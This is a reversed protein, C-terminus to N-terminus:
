GRLSAQFAAVVKESVGTHIQNVERDTLSRETSRYTIRIGLSKNGEGVQPGRYYDFLSISEAHEPRHRELYDLVEQASVGNPLVIDLDRNVPPFKPLPRFRKVQTAEQFLLDFDLDFLYVPGRIHFAHAVGPHVQGLDGLHMDALLIRASAEPLLYGPPEIDSWGIESTSVKSLLAEVVGKVDFYDTSVAPESWTAPRRLGCLIGCLNFREDPLDKGDRPFFVKSLEFLRLNFNGRHQNRAVTELMGPVLSTRMVAQEESLPNRLPLLRRRRDDEALQLQEIAERSIFSYSIVECFGAMLLTQKAHKRLTQDRAPKVASVRALPLNSPIRDYGALRAVEEVLDVERSLDPRFSPPEVELFGNGTTRVTLQISELHRRIEDESLDTGLFRNTRSVRLGIPERLIPRPYVDLRGRALEGDGLEIMLQAARDLATIVGEPDVGREFRYSSETGLGLAKSTRRISAPNFYASEILVTRTQDTIESNLGGMIGALAVGRRADCILLMDQHLQHAQGDLTVFSEAPQARRVVICHGELSECDFAHLPQGLELMVYNTIDVINNISRVNQAELRRRLWLPSSKIAINQVLRAAYRPCLDPDEVTVAALNEVPVAGEALEVAPPSWPVGFLAAVERAVGVVSLADARNPTIGIDLLVDDLGLARALPTGVPCHDPLTLIGEGYEGLGLEFQSCLMGQSLVGRIEAPQIHTGDALHAGPLALAVCYGEAVNAAGCVVQYVAEPGEVECIHLREAAPHSTIGRIRGVVVKDLGFDHHEIAEVELGAMTLRHAIEEAPAGCQVYTRLWELSVLM